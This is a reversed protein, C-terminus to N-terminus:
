LSTKMTCPLPFCLQMLAPTGDLSQQWLASHLYDVMRFPCQCGKKVNGGHETLHLVKTLSSLSITVFSWEPEVNPIRPVQGYHRAVDM